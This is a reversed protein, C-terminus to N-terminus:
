PFHFRTRRTRRWDLAPAEAARLVPEPHPKLREVDDRTVVAQFRDHYGYQELFAAVEPQSRTTVIGLKFRGNLYELLDPVGEVLRFQEAPRQGRLQNLRSRLSFAQDARIGWTGSEQPQIVAGTVTFKEESFRNYTGFATVKPILVAWAKKRTMQSIFLNEEAYKIKESNKLAQRYLDGLTYEQAAAGTAFIAAACALALLGCWVNNM